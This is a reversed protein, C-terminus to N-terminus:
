TGLMRVVGTTLAPIYTIAILVGLLALLFPMVARFVQTVPVGGVRATTFVLMGMPPTLAGVVLNMVLVIGFHVTDIGAAKIMPVLIPVLIVMAAIMEMFLGVVLLFVNVLALLLIPNAALGGMAAAVKQPVQEVTLTWAFPAAAAIIVAVAVTDRLSELLSDATVRASLARYLFFGCLLAYVAAIAGSETATFMGMRVGGVIVLPLVLAPLAQAFARRRAPGDARALDSGRTGAMVYVCIALTAATLLGPVITAVFLAGVSASALAGYIILGLSPPILNALTASASTLACSFAPSYGRRSMEPVMIKAIAAADAMSSGSVGAMMTNTAVNVQGLGGRFHGFLSSAFEVLRTTIGAANMIAAAIIFFPIALLTFSNLASGMNQPITILMLDGQASFAAFTGIVFAFAIPVELAILGLAVIILTGATNGLALMPAAHLWAVYACVGVVVPTFARLGLGHAAVRRLLLFVLLLAGGTPVAAYLYKFSWQLGPSVYTTKQVFSIGEYLLIAAAAALCGDVFAAHWGRARASLRPSFTEIAIHGKGAVLTGTGLFVAWIFMWQALEEPWSLSNNLVYRCFVQLLAVLASSALLTAAVGEVLREVANRVRVATPFDPAARAAVGSLPPSM